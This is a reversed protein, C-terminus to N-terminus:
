WGVSIIIIGETHGEFLGKAALHEAYDRWGSYEDLPRVGLIGLKYSHSSGSTCEEDAVFDYYPDDDGNLLHEEVAEEFDHYDLEIVTTTAIRM